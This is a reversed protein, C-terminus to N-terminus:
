SITVSYNNIYEQLFRRKEVESDYLNEREEPDNKLNFLSPPFTKDMLSPEILKWDGHSVARLEIQKMLLESMLYERDYGTENKILPLLSVSDINEPVEIKLVDLITAFIDVTGVRREIRQAKFEKPYYIILPVRITEEYLSGGHEFGGHEYFEEGHDASLIIITNNKIGLEDLKEFLKGLRYDNYFIETDYIAVMYRVLDESVNGYREMHIAREVENYDITENTFQKKFEVGRNYPRHLDYYHIYM